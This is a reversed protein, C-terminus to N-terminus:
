ATKAADKIETRFKGVTPRQAVPTKAIPPLPVGSRLLKTRENRVETKGGLAQAVARQSLAFEGRENRALTVLKELQVDSLNHRILQAVLTDTNITEPTETRKKDAPITTLSVTNKPTEQEPKSSTIRTRSLHDRVYNNVNEPVDSVRELLLEWMARTIYRAKIARALELARPTLAIAAKGVIVAMISLFVGVVIMGLDALSLDAM